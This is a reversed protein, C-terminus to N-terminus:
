FIGLLIFNPPYNAGPTPSIPLEHLWQSLVKTLNADLLRRWRFSVILQLMQSTVTVDEHLPALNINPIIQRDGDPILKLFCVFIFNHM